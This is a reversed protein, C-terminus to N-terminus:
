RITLRFAGEFLPIEATPSMEVMALYELISDLVVKPSSQTTRWEDTVISVEIGDNVLHYVLSATYSVLQEFREHDAARGFRDFALIVRRSEEAAYERTKLVSTKASAKWHVHRASDSPVYDRIMYLDHGLGREFRPNDGQLDLFSVNVQDPPMIEPYCICEADLAYTRDKLFFGFPYRSSAKLKRLHFRGRRTIRAQSTRSTKALSRVAPIYFACFRIDSNEPPEFHISFTPLVRKQNVVQLSIPFPEGAFCRSPLRVELRLFRFNLASLFGSLVLVALLASLVMYLLNNATNIAAFVVVTVGAFYLWGERTVHYHTFFPLWEWDVHTALRPVFRIGVWIAMGLALIASIGAAAVRGDRAASSSYLAATLAIALLGIATLFSKWM